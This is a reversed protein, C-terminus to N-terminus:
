PSTDRAVLRWRRHPTRAVANSASAPDAQERVRELEGRRRLQICKEAISRDDDRRRKVVNKYLTPERGPGTLTLPRSPQAYGSSLQTARRPRHSHLGDLAPLPSLVASRHLLYHSRITHNVSNVKGRTRKQGVGDPRRM